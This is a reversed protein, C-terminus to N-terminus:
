APGAPCPRAAPPLRAPHDTPNEDFGLAAEVREFTREVFQEAKALASPEPAPPGDKAAGPDQDQAPQEPTKAAVPEPAKAAVPESAKPAAASAAAPAAQAATAPAPAKSVPSAASAEVAKEPAKDTSDSM